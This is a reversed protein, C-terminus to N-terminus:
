YRTKDTFCTAFGAAKSSSSHKCSSSNTQNRWTTGSWGVWGQWKWVGRRTWEGNRGLRRNINPFYPCTAWCFRACVKCSSTSNSSYRYSSYGFLFNFLCSNLQLSKSPIFCFLNCRWFILYPPLNCLNEEFTSSPYPLDHMLDETIGEGWPKETKENNEENLLM